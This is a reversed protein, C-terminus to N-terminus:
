THQKIRKFTYLHEHTHTYYININAHTHIHTRTHAHVYTHQRKNEQAQIYTHNVMDKGNHKETSTNGLTQIYIHM